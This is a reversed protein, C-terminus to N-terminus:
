RNEEIKRTEEDFIKRFQHQDFDLRLKEDKLIQEQISNLMAEKSMEVVIYYRYGGDREKFVKEDMIRVDNLRQNVVERRMSEFKSAFEQRDGITRQNTYTEQVSKMTSEIAGALEAKANLLAIRKATSLDPSRGNDTARFYNADTRYERGSFPVEIETSGAQVSPLGKKSKCGSFAFILSVTLISTFMKKMCLELMKIDRIRTPRM